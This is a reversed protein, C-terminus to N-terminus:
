ILYISLVFEFGISDLLLAKLKKLLKSKAKNFCHNLNNDYNVSSIILSRFITKSIKSPNHFQYFIEYRVHQYNEKSRKELPM